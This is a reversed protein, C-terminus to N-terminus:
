PARPPAPPPRAFDLLGQITNEMRAIERKAVQLPKEQLASDGQRKAATQILLKVSTLPNRLEHAVGAALEGVAALRQSLIADHRSQQLENMVRRIREAITQVQLQLTPLDDLACVEVSGVERDLEGSADKLTVSIESISRSLGRAVWVGRACRHHASYGFFRAAGLEGDSCILTSEAASQALICENLSVLQRCPESVARALQITRQKEATQPTQLDALGPPQLRVDIHERYAAFRKQDM